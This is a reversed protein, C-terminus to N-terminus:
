VASPPATKDQGSDSELFFAALEVFFGLCFIGIGIWLLTQAKKAQLPEILSVDTVTGPLFGNRATNTALTISLHTKFRDMVTGARIAVVQKRQEESLPTSWHEIVYQAAPHTAELDGWRERM